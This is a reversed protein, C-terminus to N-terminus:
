QRGVGKFSAFPPLRDGVTKWASLAFWVLTVLSPLLFLVTVVAAPPAADSAQASTRFVLLAPLVALANNLMHALVPAGLTRTSTYLLCLTAGHLGSILAHRPHMLGFIVSSLLLAKIPSLSRRWKRFLVGRFVLEEVVPGLVVGVLVSNLVDAIALAGPSLPIYPDPMGLPVSSLRALQLAGVSLCANAAVVTLLLRVGRRDLAPRLLGPLAVSSRPSVQIVWWLMAGYITLGQGLRAWPGPLSGGFIPATLLVTGLVVLGVTWLPARALEEEFRDSAASREETEEPHM